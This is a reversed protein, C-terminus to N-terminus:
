RGLGSPPLPHPTVGKFNRCQAMVVGQVNVVGFYSCRRYSHASTSAKRWAWAVITIISTIM